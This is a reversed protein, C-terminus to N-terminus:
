TIQGRVSFREAPRQVAARRRRRRRRWRIGSRLSSAALGTLVCTSSRSAVLLGLGGLRRVAASDTPRARATTAPPAQEATARFCASGSATEPGTCVPRPAALLWFRRLRPVRVGTPLALWCPWFGTLRVGSLRGDFVSRGCRRVLARPCRRRPSALLFLLDQHRVPGCALSQGDRRGGRADDEDTRRRKAPAVSCGYRPRGHTPACWARCRRVAALAIVVNHVYVGSLMSMAAPGPPRSGPRRSRWRTGRFYM